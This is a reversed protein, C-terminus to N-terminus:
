RWEEKEVCPSDHTHASTVATVRRRLIRAAPQATHATVDRKEPKWHFSVKWSTSDAPGQCTEQPEGHGCVACPMLTFVFELWLVKRGWDCDLSFMADGGQLSEPQTIM